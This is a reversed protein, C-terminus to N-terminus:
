QKELRGVARELSRLVQENSDLKDEFRDRLDTLGERIAKMQESHAVMHADFRRELALLRTELHFIDDMTAPRPTHSIPLPNPSLEIKEGKGAMLRISQQIKLYMGALATLMILMKGLEVPDPTM